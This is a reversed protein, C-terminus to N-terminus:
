VIVVLISRSALANMCLISFEIMVRIRLGIMVCICSILSLFTMCCWILRLSDRNLTSNRHRTLMLLVVIDVLTKSWWKSLGVPNLFGITLISSSAYHLVTPSHAIMLLISVSMSIRVLWLSIISNIDVIVIDLQASLLEHLASTNM